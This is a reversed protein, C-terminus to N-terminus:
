RSGAQVRGPKETASHHRTSLMPKVLPMHLIKRSLPSGRKDSVVSIPYLLNDADYAPASYTHRRPTLDSGDRWLATLFRVLFLAGLSSLTVFILVPM